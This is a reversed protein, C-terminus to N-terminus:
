RGNDIETEIFARTRLGLDIQAAARAQDLTDYELDKVYSPVSDKFSYRGDKEMLFYAGYPHIARELYTRQANQGEQLIGGDQPHPHWDLKKISVASVPAVRTYYLVAAILDYILRHPKDDWEAGLPGQLGVAQWYDDLNEVPRPRITELMNASAKPVDSGATFTLAERVTLLEAQTIRDDEGYQTLTDALDRVARGSLLGTNRWALLERCRETLDSAM